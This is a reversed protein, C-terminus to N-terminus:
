HEAVQARFAALRVVDEHREGQMDRAPLCVDNLWDSGRVGREVVSTARQQRVEGEVSQGARNATGEPDVVQVVALLVVKVAGDLWLMVQETTRWPDKALPQHKARDIGSARHSAPM